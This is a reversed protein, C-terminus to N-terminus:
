RVGKTVRAVLYELLTPHFWQRSPGAPARTRLQGALADEVAGLLDPLAARLQLLPYTVFSDRATPSVIAQAAIAGTDVGADVVHVTAGCHNPDGQALAWYGGHVGRYAPTIGAHVNLFVAPVSDLVESSIIRTGSVVVVRPALSRLRAVAEPANVSSVQHARGPPPADAAAPALEALREAARRRLLPVALVAFAAQGIAKALGLRRRRYAFREAATVPPEVILEDVGFRADLAEFILRTSPSWTAVMAVGSRPSM